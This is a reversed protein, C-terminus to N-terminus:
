WAKSLFLREQGADDKWSLVTAGFLLIEASAKSGDALELRAISNDKIFNLPM